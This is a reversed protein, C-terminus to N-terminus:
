GEAKWQTHEQGKETAENSLSLISLEVPASGRCVGSFCEPFFRAGPESSMSRVGWCTCKLRRSKLMSVFPQMPWINRIPTSASLSVLLFFPDCHLRSTPTNRPASRQIVNCESWHTEYCPTSLLSSTQLNQCTEPTWFRHWCRSKCMAHCSMDYSAM